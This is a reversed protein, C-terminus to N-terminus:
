NEKPERLPSAKEANDLLKQQEKSLQKKDFLDPRRKRTRQLSQQLRWERILKHNGSLLVEPVKLGQFEEPRTYHPCDLLGETFSDEEASGQHGLAGPILRIMADMMVMAPLEGGSLVFDGLSWEEDVALQIVREDIGEYRGAVFVLPRQETIEIQAVSQDFPLGQPSLYVVKPQGESGALLSKAKDIAKLLPEALMVMGPGGGYPRDDVTRHVDTTFERPNVFEVSALGKNIARSTIGSETLATFM